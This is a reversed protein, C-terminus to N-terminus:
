HTVSTKNLWAVLDKELDSNLPLQAQRSYQAMLNLLSPTEDKLYDRLIHSMEPYIVAKVSKCNPLVKKAHTEECFHPIVQIDKGGSCAFVHCKLKGYDETPNYHFHDDFWGINLKVLGLYMSKIRNGKPNNEVWEKVLAAQSKIKPLALLRLLIGKIGKM